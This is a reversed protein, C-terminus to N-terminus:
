QSVRLAAAIKQTMFLYLKNLEINPKNKQSGILTIKDYYGKMYSKVGVQGGAFQSQKKL